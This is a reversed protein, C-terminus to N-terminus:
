GGSVNFSGKTTSFTTDYQATMYAALATFSASRSFKNTRGAVTGSPDAAYVLGIGGSGILGYARIHETATIRTVNANGTATYDVRWNNSTGPGINTGHCGDVTGSGNGGGSASKSFCNAAAGRSNSRDDVPTAYRKIFAADSPSLVDGVAYDRSISALRDSQSQAPPEEAAEAPAAVLMSTCLAAASAAVLATRATSVTFFKMTVEKALRTAPPDCEALSIDCESIANVRRADLHSFLLSMM